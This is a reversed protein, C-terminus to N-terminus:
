SNVIERVGIRNKTNQHLEIQNSISDMFIHEILLLSPNELCFGNEYASKKFKFFEQEIEREVGLLKTTDPVLQNAYAILKSGSFQPHAAVSALLIAYLGFHNLKNVIEQPSLPTSAIRTCSIVMCVGEERLSNKRTLLYGQEAGGDFLIMDKRNGKAEITNLIILVACKTKQMHM